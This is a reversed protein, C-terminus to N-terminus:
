RVARAVAVCGEHAVRRPRKKEPPFLNISEAPHESTVTEWKKELVAPIPSRTRLKKGNERAYLIETRLVELISKRAEDYGLGTTIFGTELCNAVWINPDSQRPELLVRLTSSSDLPYGGPTPFRKFYGALATKDLHRTSTLRKRNVTRLVRFVDKLDILAKNVVVKRELSITNM